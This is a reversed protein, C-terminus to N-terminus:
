HRDTALHGILERMELVVARLEHVEARLARVEDTLHEIHAPMGRENRPEERAKLERELEHAHHMLGEAEAIMGAARLNEAADNIHCIRRELDDGWDEDCNKDWVEDSNRDWVEDCPFEPEECEELEELEEIEEIEELKEFERCFFLDESQQEIRAFELTIQLEQRKRALGECEAILREADAAKDAREMEVIRGELRCLALEIEQIRREEALNRVEAEQMRMQMQRHAIAMGEHRLDRLVSFLRERDRNQHDNESIYGLSELKERESGIGMLRHLTTDLERRLTTSEEKMGFPALKELLASLVAGREHAKQILFNEEEDAVREEGPPLDQSAQMLGAGCLGIAGAALVLFILTRKAM